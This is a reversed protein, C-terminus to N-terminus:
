NSAEYVKRWEKLAENSGRGSLQGSQGSRSGANFKGAIEEDYLSRFEEARGPWPANFDFVPVPTCGCGDHSKFQATTESKYAPGRSALLSCFACPKGDTLRAWGVSRSDRRVSGLITGRGGNIVHRQAAKATARLAADRAAFAERGSATSNKINIPGTVLLSTFLQEQRVVDELVPTFVAGPVRADDRLGLYYTSGLSASVRRRANIVREMAAFYGAFSTDLNNVDLLPFVRAVDLAVIAQLRAQALRHQESLRAQEAYGM